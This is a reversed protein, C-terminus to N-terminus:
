RRRKRTKTSNRCDRHKRGARDDAEASLRRRAFQVYLDTTDVRSETVSQSDAALSTQQWAASRMILRHMAKVSWCSSMFQAALYDLLEPHSPREGMAGFNASTRVLGAGFHHQWLRNVIVRAALQGAGSDADTIWRALAARKM